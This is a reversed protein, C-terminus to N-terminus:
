IGLKIPFIEHTGLFLTLERFTPYMVRYIYNLDKMHKEMIQSHIIGKKKKQTIAM